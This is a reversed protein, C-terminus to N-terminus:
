QVHCDDDIWFSHKFPSLELLGAGDATVKRLQFPAEPMLHDNLRLNVLSMVAFACSRMADILSLPLEGEFHFGIFIDIEGQHANRYQFSLPIVDQPAKLITDQVFYLDNVLGDWVMPGFKTKEKSYIEPATRNLYSVIGLQAVLPNSVGYEIQIKRNLFVTKEPWVNWTQCRLIALYETTHAKQSPKNM